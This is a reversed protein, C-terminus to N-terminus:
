VIGRIRHFFSEVFNGVDFFHEHSTLEGLQGEIIKPRLRGLVGLFLKLTAKVSSHCATPLGEFM